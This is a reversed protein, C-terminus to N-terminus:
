GLSRELFGRHEPAAIAILAAARARGALGKLRAVGHETVVVDTLDGPISPSALKPVIRSAGSATAPLAIISLGGASANAGRMYDPAGGVSSIRRGARWELNLNGALDVELASGISVFGDVAALVRHGHTELASRFAFGSQPLWAQFAADGWAVGTVHEAATDLAGAEALQVYDPTIIGSHVRLGRHLKLAAVVAGPAEGIGSQITAGDPVLEACLRAIERLAANPPRSSVAPTMLPENIPIGLSVADAPIFDANPIAPMRENVFAVCRGAKPWVLGPMDCAVGFSCRGDRDPPAVHLVAVDFETAVMLEGIESYPMVDLKTRGSAISAELAPSAMFTTLTVNGPLAGYDRTNIGPILCSWLEVGNSLGPNDRLADHFAACEGPGGQFYVRQGPRLARVADEPYGTIV